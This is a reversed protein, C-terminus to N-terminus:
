GVVQYGVSQVTQRIKELPIHQTNEFTAEGKALDVQLNKIGPLNGLAKSVARVCHQCGMGKIKIKEM